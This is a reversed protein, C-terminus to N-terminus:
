TLNGEGGRHLGRVLNPPDVPHPQGCTKCATVETTPSCTNCTALYEVGNALEAELARLASLQQRVMALKAEFMHRAKAMAAPATESAGLEDLFARIDSLSLGLLQLKEIWDLRLLADEGYLRHGGDTRLAPGLLGKEEYLRVARVSKGAKKALDGIRLSPGPAAVIPLSANM